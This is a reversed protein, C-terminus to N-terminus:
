EKYRCRMGEKCIPEDIGNELNMWRLLVTEFENKEIASHYKM